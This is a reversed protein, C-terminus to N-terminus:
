EMNKETIEDLTNIKTSVEEECGSGLGSNGFVKGALESSSNTSM